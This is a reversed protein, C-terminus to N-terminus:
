RRFRSIKKGTRRAERNRRIDAQTRDSNIMFRKLKDEFEDQANRASDAGAAKKRLPEVEKASLELRGGRNQIVKVSFHDGMRAYDNINKVYENAIQSVHVLGEQGNPLKVYLGFDAIKVVEVGVVEGMSVAGSSLSM